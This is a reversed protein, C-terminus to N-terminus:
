HETRLEHQEGDQESWIELLATVDELFQCETQTEKKKLFELQEFAFSDSGFENWAPLMCVEPCSNTEVSFSFRNKAGQMDVTTRLWHKKNGSCTIRYVGGILVRNKYKEKLEKKTLKEM